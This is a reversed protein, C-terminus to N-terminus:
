CCCQVNTLPATTYNASVHCLALFHPVVDSFRAQKERGYRIIGRSEILEEWIQLRQDICYVEGLQWM